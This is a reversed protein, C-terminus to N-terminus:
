RTTNLYLLPNSAPTEGQYVKVALNVGGYTELPKGSIGVTQGGVVSGQKFNPLKGNFILLVSFTNTDKSSTTVWVFHADQSAGLTGIGLSGSIPSKIETGEPLNFGFSEEDTIARASGCLEKPVPCGMQFGAPSIPKSVGYRSVLIGIAVLVFVFLLILNSLNPQKSLDM